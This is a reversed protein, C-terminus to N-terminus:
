EPDGQIPYKSLEIDSEVENGWCDWGEVKERAFLEIRPLDGFLRTIRERVISNPKTSHKQRATAIIQPVDQNIRKIKGKTALLCIEANSRTWYGLGIFFGMNNKNFKVWTFAVTRYEFGWAEIVEFARQLAPFTVWLLLACKDDAIQSIPLAKIEDTTM